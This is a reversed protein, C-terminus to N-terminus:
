VCARRGGNVGAEEREGSGRRRGVVREEFASEVEDAFPAVLTLWSLLGLLPVPEYCVGGVPWTVIFACQVPFRRCENSCWIGSVPRSTTFLIMTSLRSAAIAALSTCEPAPEAFRGGGFADKMREDNFDRCDALDMAACHSDVFRRERDIFPLDEPEDSGVARSLGCHLAYLLMVM